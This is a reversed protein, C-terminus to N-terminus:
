IFCHKMVKRLFIHKNKVFLCRKFIESVAHSASNQRMVSLHHRYLHIELLAGDPRHVVM